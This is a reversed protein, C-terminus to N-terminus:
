FDAQSPISFQKVQTAHRGPLRGHLYWMRVKAAVKLQPDEGTDVVSLNVGRAGSINRNTVAKRITGHRPMPQPLASTTHKALRAEQAQLVKCTVGCKSMPQALASLTLNAAKAGQAQL